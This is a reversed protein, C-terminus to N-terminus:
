KEVEQERQKGKPPKKCLCENVDKGNNPSLLKVKIYPFDKKLNEYIKVNAKKGADDNDNALVVVKIEPNEHLRTYLAADKGTGCTALYSAKEVRKGQQKMLTMISLADIPAECVFLKEAKANKVMWGIDQRGGAVDRKYDSETLTTHKTAYAAKGEADKGVFVANHKNDEYILGNTICQKVIAADLCRTKTLYAFAHSYKGKVKEPLIFEKKEPAPAPKRKQKAADIVDFRSGVYQEELKKIADKQPCEGFEMVFDIPSGGKGDSFRYFSNTEPYIKVSDHEKLSYYRGEQVPTFGMSQAVTLLSVDHKIYDLVAKDHEAYDNRTSLNSSEAKPHSPLAEPPNEQSFHRVMLVLTKNMSDRVEKSVPFGKDVWSAYFENLYKQGDKEGNLITHKVARRLAAQQMKNLSDSLPYESLRRSLESLRLKKDTEAFIKDLYQIHQQYLDETYPIYATKTKDADWRDSTSAEKQNSSYAKGADTWFYGLRKTESTLREYVEQAAKNGTVTFLYKNEYYFHTYQPSVAGPTKQELQSVTGEAHDKFDESSVNQEESKYAYGVEDLIEQIRDARFGSNVLDDPGFDLLTHRYVGNVYGGNVDKRWIVLAEPAKPDFGLAFGRTEDLIYYGSNEKLGPYLRHLNQLTREGPAGADQIQEKAKEPVARPLMSELEKRLNLYTASVAKLADELNFDKLAACANYNQSFHRKRSDTLAIGVYNQLMISICDAELERVPEPLQFAEKSNHMLAHGLEHTLTSLRETDNLKDSIRITNEKPYFAGRLSISKLDEEKVPIGKSETYKKIAQYLSARQESSYGMDFIKPYDQPPCDTQSIDFVTGVGFRTYTVPKLEGSAIKRKEEPTADAVRRYKTKGDKEGVPILDTRIPFLIKIGHQGKNVRYGKENWDHISAIYTSYPNQVHILISNRLSYNWFRSKFALMEAIKEPDEEYSDLVTQLTQKLEGLKESQSHYVHEAM